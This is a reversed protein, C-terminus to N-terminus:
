LWVFDIRTEFSCIDREITDLVTAMPSRHSLSMVNTDIPAEFPASDRLCRTALKMPRPRYRWDPLADDPSSTQPRAGRFGLSVGFRIRDEIRRRSPSRRIVITNENAVSSASSGVFHCSSRPVRFNLSRHQPVFDQLLRPANQKDRSSLNWVSLSRRAKPWSNFTKNSLTLSYNSSYLSNRSRCAHSLSVM